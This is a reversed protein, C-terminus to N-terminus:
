LRGDNLLNELECPEHLDGSKVYCDSIDTAASEVFRSRPPITKLTVGSTAPFSSQIGAKAPFVTPPPVPNSESSDSMGAAVPVVFCSFPLPSERIAGVPPKGPGIELARGRVATANLGGVVVEGCTGM